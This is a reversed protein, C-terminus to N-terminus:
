AAQKLAQPKYKTLGALNDNAIEIDSTFPIQHDWGFTAKIPLNSMIAQIRVAIEQAKEIPAYWIGADHIMAAPIAEPVQRGVEAFTWLMLDSLASQVPFNIAQREAHGRTGWDPSYILPLRRLRGLPSWVMGHHRAIGRQQDHYGLLEPYTSFFGDRQAIGQEDTLYVKYQDRAYDVYSDASMGYILGFNAPKAQSRWLEYRDKDTKELGLFDEYSLGNIGAATACHLDGGKAYVGLMNTCNSLCAIIKLEGQSYDLSLIAYGPPAVFCKRLRKAHKTKKPITQVAPDIASLRGTVTGGASDTFDDRGAFLFYTPHFRGDGRLHKLFGVVYTSLTKRAKGLSEMIECMAKAEPVQFFRQLHKISTSPQKTKATVVLPELNLGIPSFFYDRKLAANDPDLKDLYKLRLRNPLLDIAQKELGAIEAKLEEGFELLKERDVCLGGHEMREFERSAPHLITIYLNGLSPNQILENKFTGAVQLCADSDGGAYPLLVEKPVAAMNSKDTERDFEDSYGGLELYEKAHAKLSNSRNEDILSGALLTDFTFNTCDLGLVVKCWILDYKLNAGCLRIAKTTLLWALHERVIPHVEGNDAYYCAATGPKSSFQFSVFRAGVAFPDQGQTETDFAVTIPKGTEQYRAWIDGMFESFDPVWKYDGLKPKLTGTTMYRVAQRVDWAVESAMRTDFDRISPHYSVLITYAGGDKDRTRLVGRFGDISRNKPYIGAQQLGHFARKGMALLVDGPAPTIPVDSTCIVTPCQVLGRLRERLWAEGRKQYDIRGREDEYDTALWLILKM